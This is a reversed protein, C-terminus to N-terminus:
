FWKLMWTAEQKTLSLTIARSATPRSLVGIINGNMSPWGPGKTKIDPDKTELDIAIIEANKLNPYQSPTTWDSEQFTFNIQHTM